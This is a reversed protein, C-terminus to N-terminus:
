CTEFIMYAYCRTELDLSSLVDKIAVQLYKMDINKKEERFNVFAELNRKLLLLYGEMRLKHYMIDAVFFDDASKYM